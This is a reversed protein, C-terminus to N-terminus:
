LSDTKTNTPDPAYKPSPAMGFNERLGRLNEKETESGAGDGDRIADKLGADFYGMERGSMDGFNRYKKWFNKPNSASLVFDAGEKTVFVGAAKFAAKGAATRWAEWFSKKPVNTLELVVVRREEGLDPFYQGEEHVADTSNNFTAVQKWPGGDKREEVAYTKRVHDALKLTTTGLQVVIPELKADLKMNKLKQHTPKVRVSVLVRRCRRIVTLM